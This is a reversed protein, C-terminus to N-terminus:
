MEYHAILKKNGILEPIAHSFNSFSTETKEKGCFRCDKDEKDDLYIKDDKNLHYTVLNDDNRGLFELM